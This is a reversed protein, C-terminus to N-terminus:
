PNRVYSISPANKWFNSEALSDYWYIPAYAIRSGTDAALVMLEIDFSFTREETKMLIKRLVEANFAKLGCQTDMIKGTQPFLKGFLLGRLGVMRRDFRTLGQVNGDKGWPGRCVSGIDYRSGVSVMCQEDQLTLLLGIQNLPAAMDADTYIVIHPCDKLPGDKIARWMGYHISGGKRSEEPSYLGKLVPSRRKIGDEIYFVRANSYGESRIIKEAIAGSHNPCGDDVLIMEFSVTSHNCVWALQKMKRRIFDEGNPNDTSKPRIRNHENYMPVVLSVHIPDSYKKIIMKSIALKSALLMSNKFNEPRSTLWRDLDDLTTLSPFTAALETAVASILEDQHSDTLDINEPLKISLADVASKWSPDTNEETFPIAKEKLVSGDLLSPLNNAIKKFEQFELNLTYDALSLIADTDFKAPILHRFKRAMAAFQRNMKYYSELSEVSGGLTDPQDLQLAKKVLSLLTKASIKSAEPKACSGATMSFLTFIM